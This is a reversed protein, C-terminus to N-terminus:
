KLNPKDRLTQFRSTNRSTRVYKETDDRAVVIDELLENKFRLALVFLIGFMAYMYEHTVRLIEPTVGLCMM